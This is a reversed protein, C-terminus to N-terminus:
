RSSTPCSARTRPRSNAVYASAGLHVQAWQSARAVTTASGAPGPPLIEVISQTRFDFLRGQVDLRTICGLVRRVAHVPCLAFLADSPVLRERGSAADMAFAQKDSFLAKAQTKKAPDLFHLTV